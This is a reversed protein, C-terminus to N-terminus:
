DSQINKIKSFSIIEIIISTLPAVDGENSNIYM